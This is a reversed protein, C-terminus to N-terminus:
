KKQDIDEIRSNTKCNPSNLIKLAGEFCLWSMMNNLVGQMNYIKDNRGRYGGFIYLSTISAM